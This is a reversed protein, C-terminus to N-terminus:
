FEPDWDVTLVGGELDVNLIVQDRIFPVLRERDGKVVLVDNAGTAMLCDVTGLEVGERTIVSLGELDAWYYEDEAVAPFDSRSVAIDQDMLQRAIDRDDIGSLHAVVGKGQQQGGSLTWRKWGERSKLYWVPYDLIGHRPATHSFVRVWGKIGYIGSVRGVVVLDDPIPEAM